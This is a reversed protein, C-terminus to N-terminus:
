PSRQPVGTCDSTLMNEPLSHITYRFLHKSPEALGSLGVRAGAMRSEQRRVRMKQSVPSQPHPYAMAGESQAPSLSTLGGVILGWVWGNEKSPDRDVGSM